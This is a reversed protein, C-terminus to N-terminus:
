GERRGYAHRLSGIEDLTKQELQQRQHAFAQKHRDKVGALVQKSQAAGVLHLKHAERIITLERVYNEQDRISQTITQLYNHYIRTEHADFGEARLRCLEDVLAARVDGLEGLLSEGRKLANEAEAFSQKALSEVRERQDLVVQMRFRFSKM